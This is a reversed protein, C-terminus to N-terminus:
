VKSGLMSLAEMPENSALQLESLAVSKQGSLRGRFSSLLQEVAFVGEYLHIHTYSLIFFALGNFFLGLAVM